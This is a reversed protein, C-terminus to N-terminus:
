GTGMIETVEQDTMELKGIVPSFDCKWIDLEFMFNNQDVNLSVVVTMDDVDKAICDAIQAKFVRDQQPLSDPVLLISGMGGDNMPIAKYEAYWNECLTYDAKGALYEIMKIEERSLERSQEM